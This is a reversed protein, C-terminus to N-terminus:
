IVVGIFTAIYIYINLVTKIFLKVTTILISKNYIKITKDLEISLLYFYKKTKLMKLQKNIRCRQM